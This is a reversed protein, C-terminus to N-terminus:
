FGISFVRGGVSSSTGNFVNVQSKPNTNNVDSGIAGSTLASGPGFWVALQAKQVTMPLTFATTGGAPATVSAWQFILGSPSKQYGNPTLAAGFMGSSNGLQMSGGFAQWGSGFKVIFVSDGLAIAPTVATSGGSYAITDGNAPDITAIASNTTGVFYFATGNEVSNLAPLTVTIATSNSFGLLAGADTVPIPGSANIPQIGSFNGIAQQVGGMTALKSTADFQPPTVGYSGAGLQQAGGGCRLLLWAGSGGNISAAVVYELEAVQTAILELGQLPKLNLGLIPKVPLGDPAYTSPGTNTTGVTIRQRVGHVLTQATLPVVNVAAYANVAGADVLPINTVLKAVLAQQLQTNDNPNLALGTSTVFNALEDQVANHWAAALPTGLAGTAPNGDVFTNGPADILQM